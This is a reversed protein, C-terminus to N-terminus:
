CPESRTSSRPRGQEAGAARRRRRRARCDRCRSPPADVQCHDLDEMKPRFTRGCDRCSRPSLMPRFFAANALSRRQEATITCGPRDLGSQAGTYELKGSLDARLWDDLTPFRKVDAERKLDDAHEMLVQPLEAILRAWDIVWAGASFGAGQYSEAPKWSVYRPMRAPGRSHTVESLREVVADVAHEPALQRELLGYRLAARYWHRAKRGFRLRGGDERDDGGKWSGAKM